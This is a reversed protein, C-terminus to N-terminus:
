QKFHYVKTYTSTYHNSEQRLSMIQFKDHLINPSQQGFLLTFKEPGSVCYIINM